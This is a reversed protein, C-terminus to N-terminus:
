TERRNEAGLTPGTSNHYNYTGRTGRVKKMNILKDGSKELAILQVKDKIINKWRNNIKQLEM